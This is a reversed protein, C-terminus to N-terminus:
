SADEGPGSVRGDTIVEVRDGATVFGQGVTIVRLKDPLGALWVKGDKNRVIDAKFFQVRDNSDVCKIGFDGSENLTLSSPELAHARVEELPLRMQASTGAILRDGPNEVQLEVQYTRTQADAEGGIYRLQGQLVRGKSLTVSGAQGAKLYGIVDESVSGRVIFPSQEMVYGIEDGVSVFDGVEVPRTELVGAFPAKIFTNALDKTRREVDARAIELNARSQALELETMYDDKHLREAAAYQLQRQKLVAEAQRLQAQRDDTALRAILGGKEILAGRQAGVQIVRGATEARVRVSRIAATRGSVLVERTVTTADSPKVRVKVLKDSQAEGMALAPAKGDQDPKATDDSFLGSALWLLVATAIIGAIWAPNLNDLHKM